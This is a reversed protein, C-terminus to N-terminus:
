NIDRLLDMEDENFLACLRNYEDKCAFYIKEVTKAKSLPMDNYGFEDCFDDFTGVDYKQLCALIDYDTPKEGKITIFDGWLEEAKNKPFLEPNLYKYNSGIGTGIASYVRKNLKNQFRTSKAISQGFNFTYSRAGRSITIVYIDRKEKDDEFHYDNKFFEIKIDSNTAILFDIAQQEYTSVTKM